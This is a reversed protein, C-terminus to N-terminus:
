PAEELTAIVLRSILKKAEPSVDLFRVAIHDTAMDIMQVRVIEGTVDLPQADIEFLIQVREGVAVSIEGELRAGGLSISVITLTVGANHRALVTAAATAPARPHQRQEDDM